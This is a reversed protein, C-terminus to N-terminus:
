SGASAGIEGFRNDRLGVVDLYHYALEEAEKRSKHHLKM